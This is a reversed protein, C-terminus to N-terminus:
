HPVSHHVAYVKRMNKAVARVSEVRRYWGKGFTSWTPLERMFRLRDSCLKDTLGFQKDTAAKITHPGIVGDAPVGLISQLHSVARIVGSNVAFDFLALDVGVPLEDGKIRDWYEHRYIAEVEHYTILRVKNPLLGQKHRWADYTKQTIGHNTAGGPDKPHNVFGGEHRLVEALALKYSERM